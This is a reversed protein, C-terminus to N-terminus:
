SFERDCPVTEDTESDMTVLYTEERIKNWAKARGKKGNLLVHPSLAAIKMRLSFSGNEGIWSKM